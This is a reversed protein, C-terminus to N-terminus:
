RAEKATKLLKMAEAEKSMWIVKWIVNAVILIAVVVGIVSVAMAADFWFTSKNVVFDNPFMEVWFEWQDFAVTNLFQDKHAVANTFVYYSTYVNFAVYAASSIYNSIYYKRRTNNLTIFCLAALILMVVAYVVETRNFDQVDYYIRSGEVYMFSTEDIFYYLTYLNTSYGLGLVFFLVASALGLVTVLKQFKMQQLM